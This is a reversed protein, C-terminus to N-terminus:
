SGVEPSSNDDGDIEEELTMPEDDDMTIVPSKQVVEVEPEESAPELNKLAEDASTTAVSSGVIELLDPEKPDHKPETMPIIDMDAPHEDPLTEMGALNNVVATKIDEPNDSAIIAVEPEAPKPVEDRHKVPIAYKVKALGEPSIKKAEEWFWPPLSDKPMFDGGESYVHGHQIILPPQELKCLRIYPDNGVQVRAGDERNRFEQVKNLNLAM